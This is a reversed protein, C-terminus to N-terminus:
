AQLSLARCCRVWRKRTYARLEAHPRATLSGICGRLARRGSREITNLTVFFPSRATVDYSPATLLTSLTRGQLMHELAAFADIVHEVTAVVEDSAGKVDM